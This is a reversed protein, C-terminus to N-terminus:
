KFTRRREGSRQDTAAALGRLRAVLAEVQRRTESLSGSCNVEDDALRCKDAPDLQAGIRRRAEEPAMGRGFAPDTLREMQQAPNCTVVVLRDLHKQYGAEILLAAELVAVGRPDFSELRAFERECDALVRPHIMANLKALRTPDHFVIAALRPRNVSGDPDLIDRGFERVVEDYAAGGPAIMEHAMKDAELIHCSFERMMAAVTSKGCGIGGTLGVRLM